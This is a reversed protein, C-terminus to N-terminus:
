NDAISQQSPQSRNLVFAGGLWNGGCFTGDAVSKLFELWQGSRADVSHLEKVMLQGARAITSARQPDARLERALQPLDEPTAAFYNDGSYFGLEESRNFPASVLLTGYAPIEFHKRLVTGQLSGCTYAYRVSSITSVFSRRYWAVLRRRHYPNAGVLQLSNMLQRNRWTTKTRYTGRLLQIAQKRQVYDVGPVAWADQRDLLRGGIFEEEAVFHPLVCTQATSREMFMHYNDTAVSAFQEEFLRPTNAILPLDDQGWNTVWVSANTEIDEIERDSFNYVDAGLLSLVVPKGSARISARAATVQLAIDKGFRGFTRQLGREYGPSGYGGIVLDTTIVCDSRDIVAEINSLRTELSDQCRALDVFDVQAFRQIVRPVLARTPNM